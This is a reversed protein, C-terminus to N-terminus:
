CVVCCAEDKGLPDLPENMIELLEERLRLATCRRPAEAWAAALLERLRPDWAPPLKPREGGNVVREMHAVLGLSAYPKGALSLIEHACIAAGYVDVLVGYREGRAVEPAMYRRTGTDGTLEFLEGASSEPELLAVSLGFDLLKLRGSRTVGLNEPKIDRHAVHAGPLASTHLHHLAAALEAVLRLREKSPWARKVRGRVEADRAVVELRLASVCTGECWALLVCPDGSPTTGVGYSEIVHPHTARGLLHVERVFARRERADGSLERRLVKLACREGKRKGRPVVSSFVRAQTGAAVPADSVDRLKAYDFEPVVFGDEIFRRPMPRYTTARLPRGLPDEENFLCKRSGSHRISLPGGSLLWRSQPNTNRPTGLTFFEELSSRSSGASGPSVFGDGKPGNARPPRRPTSAPTGSARSGEDDPKVFDIKLDETGLQKDEAAGGTQVSTDPTVVNSDSSSPSTSSRWM